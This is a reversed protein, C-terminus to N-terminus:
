RIAWRSQAPCHLCETYSLYFALSVSLCISLFTPLHISLYLYYRTPEGYEEAKPITTRRLCWSCKLGFNAQGGGM